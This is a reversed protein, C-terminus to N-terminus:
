RSAECSALGCEFAERDTEHGVACCLRHTEDHWPWGDAPKIGTWAFWPTLGSVNTDLKIVTAVVRRGVAAEIVLRRSDKFVSGSM